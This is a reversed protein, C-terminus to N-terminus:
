WSRGRCDNILKDWCDECHTGSPIGNDVRPIGPKKKCTDCLKEKTM